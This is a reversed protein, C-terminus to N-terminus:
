LPRPLRFFRPGGCHANQGTKGRGEEVEKIEEFEEIEKEGFGFDAIITRYVWM